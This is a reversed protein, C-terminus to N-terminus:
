EVSLVIAGYYSNGATINTVTGDVTMVLTSGTPATVTAGIDVTLSTLYSTGTVTWTSVDDLNVIVGNNVSPGATNNVLGLQQYFEATVPNVYHRASSATIVGEVQSRVFTVALNMDNRMSNYFDGQLQIDTFISVADTSHAITTDFTDDKVPDGTPDTYGGGYIAYLEDTYMGVMDNEMLQYLIGSDTTVQAGNSGDVLLKAENGKNLFTTEQSHLVTGGTISVTGPGSWFVGYRQSRVVTNREEVEAIDQSTLGLELESNLQTIFDRDSDAYYVNGYDVDTGYSGVDYTTGLIYNSSRTAAGLSFSGYGNDGTQVAYCNIAVLTAGTSLDLSMLGWQTTIITTNIYTATTNEGELLTARVTGIFGLWWPASEMYSSDMNSWYDPPLVGDRIEITSDTVVITCGDNAVIGARVAGHNYIYAGDIRLFTSNGTAVISPGYGAFDSRGNGEFNITPNTLTYSGGAVYVGNFAEGNSTLSIDTASTNTVTGGVVASLVSKSEVVGTNDVYIAQRIPFVLGNFEVENVETVTLMIAGEYTGALFKTRTSGTATLNQGTEVGNL